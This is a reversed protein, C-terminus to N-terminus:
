KNSENSDKLKYRFIYPSLALIIIAYVIYALFVLILNSFVNLLFSKIFAPWILLVSLIIRSSLMMEHFAGCNRCELSKGLLVRLLTKYKFETGCNKCKQIIM